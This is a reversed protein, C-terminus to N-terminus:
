RFTESTILALVLDQFGEGNAQNARVIEAIESREAYNPVRGTAYTLLKESLCESFLDIHEIIWSKLETIDAITTGDPLVGSSDITVDGKPWTERWNGVPDFNELVFGIPDILQHCTYCAPDDTHATLLERPTTTGRTDPTLAPVNKPPEPPPMGLINELVWVGRLVPQTDVGNATAMMVASQGLLGGFRGGRALPLREIKLTDDLYLDADSTAAEDYQYNKEAFTRSTLTFDPDIFDTMPLNHSLIETFFWEAETKALTIEADSFKFVADPMIESLLNTDLWQGTFSQIMASDPETPLLRQAQQRLIAPDSLQGAAALQILQDDPPAKTLFYALRAALDFDDWEGEGVGRYLFRPSILINRILLHVGDEFSSGSAWSERAIELYADITQDDVPRRFAKPLLRELIKRGQAEDSQGPQRTGVLQQRVKKRHITEPDDVLKLPGEVKVQHLEMAPGNDFFYHCLADAINFTGQNGRIHKLLAKTMPTDMTAQSMDLDPDALHRSVIEWGNKGRLSVSRSITIDGDAYVAKQWAALFRPDREFWAGMQDALANFEHDMAANAWRFLVTQGKYLDAEFTVTEPSESSVSIEKLLRFTDVDSRDSASLERARVELRMPEDGFVRFGSAPDDFAPLFQSADVTIRYTGSAMIEIRSAWSCSRMITVSQSVLRLADGRVTAASFSLVMDEPGATRTSPAPPPKVPPFIEDAINTAVQRYAEMLPPSLVLGEGLNNFGHFETDRPFGLPLKFDPLDFLERITTAYEAQNLRRPPTGGIPTYALLSKDLWPLIEEREEDTPQTKEAPPMLGRDIMSHVLEWTERSEPDSWEITEFDLNLDGEMEVEDHCNLCHNILFETPADPILLEAEARSSIASVCILGSLFLFRFRM